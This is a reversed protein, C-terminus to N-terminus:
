SSGSKEEDGEPIEFTHQAPVGDQQPMMKTPTTNESLYSDDYRSKKTTTQKKANSGLGYM